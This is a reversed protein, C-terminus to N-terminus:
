ATGVVGVAADVDDSNAASVHDLEEGVLVALNEVVITRAGALALEFALML